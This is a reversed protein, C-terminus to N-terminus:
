ADTREHATSFPLIPTLFKKRTSSAHM